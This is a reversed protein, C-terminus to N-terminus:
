NNTKSLYYFSGSFMSATKKKKKQTADISNEKLM